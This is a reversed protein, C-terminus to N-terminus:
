KAGEQGVPNVVSGDNVPQANIVANPQPAETGVISGPTDGADLNVLKIQPHVVPNLATFEAGEKVTGIGVLDIDSGENKYKYTQPM